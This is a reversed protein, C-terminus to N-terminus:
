QLSQLIYCLSVTGVCFLIPPVIEASCLYLIFYITSPLNNFFIRFGKCIFVIRASFYLIIATVLMFIITSPFVLMIGVLPFLLLGLLSQSAKFGNLWLDTNTKDSFVYGLLRYLAIQLLYFLLALGSLGAVCMFVNAHLLPALSPEWHAIGYFLLLGEMICTNFILATMMRTESMTHDYFINERKRTSFMNHFFHDIYKYGSKYSITILFAGLLMLAMSGTDHLPSQTHPQAATKAPSEMVPLSNLANHQQTTDNGGKSPFGQLYQPAYYTSTSDTHLSDAVNNATSHTAVDPM